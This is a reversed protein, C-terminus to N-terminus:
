LFMCVYRCCFNYRFFILLLFFRLPAFDRYARLINLSSIAIYSVLSKVVRSKRGKYYTVHTPITRIRMRKAAIIQFSEQTYTHTSNLNLATLARYSYARFGCTVDNFKQRSFNSVVRAGVKNGYYVTNTPPLQASSIVTEMTGNGDTDLFLLYRFNVNPGSCLDTATLKLDIPMECLDHSSHTADWWYDVNWFLPDNDTLDCTDPKVCTAVPDQGDIIKIIQTYTYGNFKSGTPWCSSAQQWYDAYNTELADTPNIKVRTSRWPDTTPANRRDSVIPGTLNASSNTIVSPNPNPVHVLDCNPDFTCWNIVKWTREIKYCADPVVTFTDDKFSTALLECDEGFFTPAGYQGTGDCVTIIRDDPFRVYYDEEYNVVVRQTCSGTNGHCDFVRFTRTITGKNCTTDFQGYGM